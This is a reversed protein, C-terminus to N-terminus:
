LVFCVHLDLLNIILKWKASAPILPVHNICYCKIVKRERLNADMFRIIQNHSIILCYIGRLM